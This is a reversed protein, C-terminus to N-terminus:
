KKQSSRNKKYESYAMGPNVTEFYNKIPKLQHVTNNIHNGRFKDKHTKFSVGMPLYPYRSRFVEGCFKRWTKVPFERLYRAFYAFEIFAAYRIVPRDEVRPWKKQMDDLFEGEAKKFYELEDPHIFEDKASANREKNSKPAQAVLQSLLNSNFDSKLRDWQQSRHATKNSESDELFAKVVILENENNEILLEIFQSQADGFVKSLRSINLARNKAEESLNVDENYIAGKLLKIEKDIEALAKYIDTQKIDSILLDEPIQHGKSVKCLLENFEEDIKLLRSEMESSYTHAKAYDQALEKDSVFRRRYLERSPTKPAEKFQEYLENKIGLISSVINRLPFDQRSIEEEFIAELNM